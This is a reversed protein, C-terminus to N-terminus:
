SITPFKEGRKVVGWGQLYHLTSVFVALMLLVDVVWLGDALAVEGHRARILYIM